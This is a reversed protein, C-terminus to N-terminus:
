SGTTLARRGPSTADLAWGVVDAPDKRRAFAARQRSAGNGGSVIEAVAASVVLWDGHAELAPRLHELLEGVVAAAPHPAGSGPSVLTSALGYRGARWMAAELIEQRCDVPAQGDLVERACTWALARSLGALAVAEEVTPCVDCARFELTPWRTSPRVYWYIFTADEIAEISRLEEVLGDFDAASRLHPPMGSTPWRQWVQLRYSAYGTDAAQWFPSNAFLAVLVPLWSRSRNMAAVALERDPIGVHVHCGCIVQQRAVVQYVEEMRRYRDHSLDVQQDQWLGSPHTGVAVVDCGEGAAVGSLEARLRTLEARVQALTTCVPTGVEIQCLNLESSVETGLARSAAPLVAHSRPVLAGTTADVVLFEEEVGLTLIDL